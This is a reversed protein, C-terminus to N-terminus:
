ITMTVCAGILAHAWQLMSGMCYLVVCAVCLALM